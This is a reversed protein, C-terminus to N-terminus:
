KKIKLKRYYVLPIKKLHKQNLKLYVKSKMGDEPAHIVIM